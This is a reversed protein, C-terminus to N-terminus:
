SSNDSDDIMVASKDMSFPSHAPMTSTSSDSDTDQTSPMQNTVLKSRARNEKIMVDWRMVARCRPCEGDVPVFLPTGECLIDRALCRMHYTATCDPAPCILISRSDAEDISTACSMCALCKQKLTNAARHHYDKMKEIFYTKM